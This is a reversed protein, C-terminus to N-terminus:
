ATVTAAAAGAGCGGNSTLTFSLALPSCVASGAATPDFNAAGPASKLGSLFWTGGTCSLSITTPLGGCLVSSAQWNQLIGGQYALAVTGSLAGTFTVHVTEPIADACCGNTVTHCACPLAPPQCKVYPMGFLFQRAWTGASPAAAMLYYGLLGPMTPYLVCWSDPVKPGRPGRPHAYYWVALEGDCTLVVAHVYDSKPHFITQCKLAGVRGRARGPQLVAPRGAHAAPIGTYPYM